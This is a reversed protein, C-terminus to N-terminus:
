VVKSSEIVSKNYLEGPATLYIMYDEVSVRLLEPSSVMEKSQHNTSSNMCLNLSIHHIYPNRSLFNIFIYHYFSLSLCVSSSLFTLFHSAICSICRICRNLKIGQLGQNHIASNGGPQNGGRM